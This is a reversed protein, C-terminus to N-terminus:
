NNRVKNLVIAASTAVNLSEFSIPIYILKDSNLIIKTEIGSGENGFVIIFKEPFIIDNIKTAKKNLNTSFINYNLGKLKIIDSLLNSTTIINLSFFSGKSARLIKSNYIDFNEVILTDIDFAKCLRIITGINGPDQVNNLAIIKKGLNLDNKFKCVGIINQPNTLESLHEIVSRSVITSDRYIPEENEKIHELTELLYGSKKAEDVMHKDEILFKQMERRYKKTKLKSLQKIKLNNKSNIIM